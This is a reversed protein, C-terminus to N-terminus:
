NAQEVNKIIDALLNMMSAATLPQVDIGTGTGYSELFRPSELYFRNEKFKVLFWGHRGALKDYVINTVTGGTPKSDHPRNLVYDVVGAIPAPHQIFGRDRWIQFCIFVFHLKLRWDCEIGWDKSEYTTFECKLEPLAPRANETVVQLMDDLDAMGQRRLALRAEKSANITLERAESDALQRERIQMARLLDEQDPTMIKLYDDLAELVARADQPREASDKRLLRQVLRVITPHFSDGLTPAVENLHQKRYDDEGPGGFPRQGSLAEYALIGFAYLDSKATALQGRWLEPAMYPITGAGFFTYTGTSEELNRSIGFDALRWVEDMLLVNAPKIDRHLIGLNALEMLGFAVDRLAKIKESSTLRKGLDSALSGQALPMVILLDDDVYAYDLPVLLHQKASDSGSAKALLQGIEVERDRRRREGTSGFRLKVQKIATQRGSAVQTGKFVLGMGSRDGIPQGEDFFWEIGTQGFFTTM